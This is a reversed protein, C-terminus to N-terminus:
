GIRIGRSFRQKAVHLVATWRGRPLSHPLGLQIRNVGAAWIKRASARTRGARVLALKAGAPHNIRARAVLLRRAGRREISIRV